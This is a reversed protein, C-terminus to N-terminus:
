VGPIMHMVQLRAEVLLKIAQHASLAVIRSLLTSYSCHETKLMDNPAAARDFTSMQKGYDDGLRNNFCPRFGQTLLSQRQSPSESGHVHDSPWVTCCQPNLPLNEDSPSMRQEHQTTRYNLLRPDNRCQDGAGLDRLFARIEDSSSDM